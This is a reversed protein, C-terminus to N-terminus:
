GAVALRGRGRRAGVAEGAPRRSGQRPHVCTRPPRLGVPTHLGLREEGLGEPSRQVQVRGGGHWQPQTGLTGPLPPLWSSLQGPGTYLDNTDLEGLTPSIAGPWADRGLGQERLAGRPKSPVLSTRPMTPRACEWGALCVPFGWRVGPSAPAQGWERSPMQVESTVRLLPRGGLM